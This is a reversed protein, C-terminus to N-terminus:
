KLINGSDLDFIEGYFGGVILGCAVSISFFGLWLETYVKTFFNSYFYGYSSTCICLDLDYNKTTDIRLDCITRFQGFTYFHTCTAFPCISTFLNCFLLFPILLPPVLRLVAQRTHGIRIVLDHGPQRIPHEWLFSFM